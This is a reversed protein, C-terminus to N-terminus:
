IDLGNQVMKIYENENNVEKFSEMIVLFGTDHVKQKITKKTEHAVVYKEDDDIIIGENKLIDEIMKISSSYNVMDYARQGSGTKIFPIFTFKVVYGEEVAKVNYKEIAEKVYRYMKKRDADKSHYSKSNYHNTSKARWAVYFSQIM